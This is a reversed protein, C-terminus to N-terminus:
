FYYRIGARLGQSRIKLQVSESYSFRFLPMRIWPELTISWKDAFHYEACTAIYVSLNIQELEKKTQIMSSFMDNVPYVEYRNVKYLFGTIVGSKIGFNFNGWRNIWSATLPIEIYSWSNIGTRQNSLLRNEYEESLITDLRSVISTNYYPEWVTDGLILSDVNLFWITDVDIYENWEFETVQITDVVTKESYFDQKEEFRIIGAGSQIMFNKHPHLNISIGANLGTKPTFSSKRSELLDNQRADDTKFRYSYTFLSAYAELSWHYNNPNNVVKKQTRKMSGLGSFKNTEFLLSECNISTLRDDFDIFMTDYVFVTDYITQYTYVTDFTFITDYFIITDNGPIYLSNESCALEKDPMYTVSSNVNDIDNANLQKIGLVFILLWLLYYGYRNRSRSLTNYVTTAIASIVTKSKGPWLFIIQSKFEKTVM